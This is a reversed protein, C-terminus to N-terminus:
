LPFHLWHKGKVNNNPIHRKSFTKYVELFWGRNSSTRISCNFQFVVKFIKLLEVGTQISKKLRFFDTLVKKVKSPKINQSTLKHIIQLLFDNNVMSYIIMLKLM